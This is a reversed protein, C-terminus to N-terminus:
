QKKRQWVSLTCGTGERASFEKPRDKGPPAYCLKFTDGSLEYIGRATRNGEALVLDTQKPKKGPELKMTGEEATKGESTITFRDGKVTNKFGKVREPPMDKGDRTASVLKWEGQLSDLEKKAEDAAVGLIGLGATLVLLLRLRM